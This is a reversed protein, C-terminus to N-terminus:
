LTKRMSVTVGSRGTEVFGWRAYLGLNQSMDVHTNLRIDNCHLARAKAEVQEFLRGAIGQGACDPRVAINALKLHDPGAVAIAVGAVRHGAFEALWVHNQQIDEEIGASVPPLDEIRGAYIGYALDICAAIAAADEANAPRIILDAM